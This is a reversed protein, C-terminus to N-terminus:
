GRDRNTRHSGSHRSVPSQTELQILLATLEAPIESYREFARQLASGIADSVRPVAVVIARRHPGRLHHPAVSVIKSYESPM